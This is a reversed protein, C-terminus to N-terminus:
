LKFFEFETKGDDEYTILKFGFGSEEAIIRYLTRTQEIYYASPKQNLSAMYEIVPSKDIKVKLVDNSLKTHLLESAEETEYLKEIWSKLACLGDRKFEQIWPAYYGKVYTAIFDIAAESGFTEGCYKLANDGLLHFDRHLYKNDETKMDVVLVNENTALTEKAEEDSINNWDFDPKNGKEFLLSRCEANAVRSNDRIYEIGYNKLVREYIVNCHSCYDHYPEVHELANLMGRSPCHRMRSYSFKKEKDHIELVDCAEETLTHGWYALTGEYGGLKECKYALSNPNTKDGINTDSIHYWYKLVEDHGGRAELYKFFESYLPIFETCSIM